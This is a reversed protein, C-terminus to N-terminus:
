QPRGDVEGREELAHPDDSGGVHKEGIFIQPVTRRGTAQTLRLRADDDWSVDIEQYPVSKKQLLRKARVCFPCTQTTYIRVPKVGTPHADREFPARNRETSWWAPERLGARGRASWSPSSRAWRRRLASDASRSRGSCSRPSAAPTRKRGGNGRAEPTCSAARLWRCSACAARRSSARRSM